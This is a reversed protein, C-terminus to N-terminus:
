LSSVVVTVWDNGGRDDRQIAWLTFAGPPRTFERREGRANGVGGVEPFDGGTVYWQWTLDEEGDTAGGGPNCVRYRDPAQSVYRACIVQKGGPLPAAALPTGGECGDDGAPAFFVGDAPPRLLPNANPDTASTVGAGALQADTPLVRVTKVAVSRKGEAGAVVAVVLEAYLRCAYTPERQAKRIVFDLAETLDPVAYEVRAGAGLRLVPPNPGAALGPLRSPDSLLTTDSCPSVQDSAAPLCAFWDVALGPRGLPNAVLADLVLTEGPRVDALAGSTLGSRVALIRVDAVRFQPDVNTNCAALLLAAALLPRMM